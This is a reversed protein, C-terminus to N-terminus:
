SQLTAWMEQDREATWIRPHTHGTAEDFARSVDFPICHEYIVWHGYKPRLAADTDRYVRRLDHGQAVGAKVSAFVDAVFSRTGAIAERCMAADTLADGRGPVDTVVFHKACDHPCVGAEVRERLAFEGVPDGCAQRLRGAATRGLASGDVRLHDVAGGAM